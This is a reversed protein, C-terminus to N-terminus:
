GASDSMQIRVFIVVPIGRYGPNARYEVIRGLTQGLALLITGAEGPSVGDPPVVQAPMVTVEVGAPTTFNPAYTQKSTDVAQLVWGAPIAAAFAAYARAVWEATRRLDAAVRDPGTPDATPPVAACQSAPPSDSM